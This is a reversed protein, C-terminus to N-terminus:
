ISNFKSNKWSFKILHTADEDNWFTQNLHCFGPDSTLELKNYSQCKQSWISEKSMVKPAQKMWDLEAEREYTRQGARQPQKTVRHRVWQQVVKGIALGLSDDFADADHHLWAEKQCEQGSEELDSERRKELRPDSPALKAATLFITYNQWRVTQRKPIQKPDDMPKKQFWKRTNRNTHQRTTATEAQQFNKQRRKHHRNWDRESRIVERAHSEAESKQKPIKQM